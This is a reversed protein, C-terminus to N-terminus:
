GIIQLQCITQRLIGVLGAVSDLVAKPDERNTETYLEPMRLGYENRVKVRVLSM